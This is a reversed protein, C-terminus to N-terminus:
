FELLFLSGRQEGERLIKRAIWWNLCNAEYTVMNGRFYCSKKETYSSSPGAM